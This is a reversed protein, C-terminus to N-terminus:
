MGRNQRRDHMRMGLGMTSFQLEPSIGGSPASSIATIKGENASFPARGPVMMGLGVGAIGGKAFMTATSRFGAFGKATGAITGGSSGGVHTQNLRGVRGKSLNYLGAVGTVAGTAVKKAMFSPIGSGIAAATNIGATAMGPFLDAVMRNDETDGFRSLFAERAHQTLPDVVQNAGYAIGAATVGRTILPFKSHVKGYGSAAGKFLAKSGKFAGGVVTKNLLTKALGLGGGLLLADFLM